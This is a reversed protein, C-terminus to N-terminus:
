LTTSEQSSRKRLRRYLSDRSWFYRHKYFYYLLGWAHSAMISISRYSMRQTHHIVHAIPNYLVRWGHMWMRLCYDVDEPAYFIREDLLGVEKMAVTNVLWTASICYDVEYSRDGDYISRSYLEDAEALGHLLTGGLIKLLKTRMTPFRKSAAQTSGDPSILRPGVIGVRPERASTILAEIAGPLLETDSDLVLVHEGAAKRFALNRSRTTGHNRRLRIVHIAEFPSHTLIESAVQLTGDTSANDILFLEMPRRKAEAALSRLCGVIYRQSNWTIIIASLLSRVSM